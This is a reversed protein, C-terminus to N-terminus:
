LQQVIIASLTAHFLQIIGLLYTITFLILFISVLFMAVRRIYKKNQKTYLTEFLVQLGVIVVILFIWYKVMPEVFFAIIKLAMPIPINLAIYHRTFSMQYDTALLMIALCFIILPVFTGYQIATDKIIKLKPNNTNEMKVGKLKKNIKSTMKLIGSPHHKKILLM